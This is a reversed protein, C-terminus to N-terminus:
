WLIGQSAENGFLCSLPEGSGINLSQADSMIFDWNDVNFEIAMPDLPQQIEPMFPQQMPLSQLNHQQEALQAVELAQQEQQQQQQQLIIAQCACDNIRCMRILNYVETGLVGGPAFRLAAGSYRAFEGESSPAFTQLAADNAEQQGRALMAELIPLCIAEAEEAIVVLEHALAMRSETSATPAALMGRRMGDLQKDILNWLLYGKFNTEGAEIGRLSWHSAAQIVALLDPRIPARGSGSSDEDEILQFKAEAAVLLSAQMSLHRLAGAGLLSQRVIEPDVLVRGPKQEYRAKRAENAAFEAADTTLVSNDVIGPCCAQWISVATDCVVRRSYAYATKEHLSAGFFPIHLCLLYRRMVLHVLAVTYRDIKRPAKAQDSFEVAAATYQQLKRSLARYASRFQRDLHLTDAYTSPPGIDNLFKCTALRLSLTKRLAVAVSMGTFDSVPRAAAHASISLTGVGTTEKDPQLATQTAPGATEALVSEELAEDDINSPPRTDFDTESLMVPGGADLSTSVIVELITNWIRRRMEAALHSIRKPLHDPDRHLGMYMASRLLDGVSIWVLAGGIGTAERAFLLLIHIQLFQMTLHAKYEPEASWAQAAYFWRVARTRLAVHDPHTAAGIALVLKLQVVFAIDAKTLPTSTAATGTMTAGGLTIWLADYERRFIPIHLIRYLSETSRLYCEVLEDALQRSPLGYVEHLHSSASTPLTVQTLPMPMPPPPWSSGVRLAKIIRGIHKLRQMDVFIKSTASDTVQQDIMEFIDRFGVISNVWHSQGFLRTKHMVSRSTMHMRHEDSRYRRTRSSALTDGATSSPKAPWDIVSPSYACTEDSGVKNNTDEPPM